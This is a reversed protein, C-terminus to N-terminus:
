AARVRLLDAHEKMARYLAFTARADYLADHSAEETLKIGFYECLTALRYNAPPTLRTDEAFLWYARQLTCYVRRAAPLFLDLGAYFQQLKPGDFAANHSVLQAVRYPRGTRQSLLDVTAHRRLFRAFDAAADEPRQALRRWVTPEFSNLALAASDAREFDFRVKVEFAELENLSADVAIAAIQIIQSDEKLGGTEVDVCVLKEDV